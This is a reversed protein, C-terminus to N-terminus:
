AMLSLLWQEQAKVKIEMLAASSSASMAKGNPPWHYNATVLLSCMGMMLHACNQNQRYLWFEETHRMGLVMKSRNFYM